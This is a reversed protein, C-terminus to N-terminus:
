KTGKLKSTLQPKTVEVPEDILNIEYSIPEESSECIIPSHIEEEVIIRGLPYEQIKNGVWVAGYGQNIAILTGEIDPDSPSVKIINCKLKLM